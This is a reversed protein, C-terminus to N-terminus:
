YLLVLYVQCAECVEEVETRCQEIDEVGTINTCVEVVVENCKEVVQNEEIIIGETKCEEKNETTCM